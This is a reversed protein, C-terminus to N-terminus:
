DDRCDADHTEMLYSTGITLPESEIVDHGYVPAVSFIVTAALFGFVKVGAASRNELNSSVRIEYCKTQFCGTREGDRM